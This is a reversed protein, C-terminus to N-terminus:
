GGGGSQAILPGVTRVFAMLEEWGSPGQTMPGGFAAQSQPNLLAMLARMQQEQQATGSQAAGMARTYGGMGAQGSLVGLTNSAQLQRGRAQEMAQQALLNFDNASRQRTAGEQFMAAGSMRNPVGARMQNLSDNLNQDSVPRLANVVDTGDGQLMRLISPLATNLADMEPNSGLSQMISNNGMRQLDGAQGKGKGTGIGSLFKMWEPSQGIMNQRYGQLDQPVAQQPDPQRTLNGFQRGAWSTAQQGPGSLLLAPLLFQGM